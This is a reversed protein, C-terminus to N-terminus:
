MGRRMEGGAIFVILKDSKSSLNRYFTGSELCYFGYVKRHKNNYIVERTIAKRHQRM